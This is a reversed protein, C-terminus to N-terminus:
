IDQVISKTCMKPTRYEGPESKPKYILRKMLFDAIEELKIIEHKDSLTIAAKPMTPVAATIPNQVITFGGNELITLLGKAGDTNAGTLLIGILQEKYAIAAQEFTIDISPRSYNVKESYDLSFTKSEEILLHYDAPALYVNGPLIPEKEEAEKVKLKCHRQFVEALPSEKMPSRHIVVLLPVAFDHPLAPLIALLADICGASGGIVILQVEAAESVPAEM